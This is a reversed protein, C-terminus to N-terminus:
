QNGWLEVLTEMEARTIAEGPAKNFTQAIAGRLNADPIDVVQAESVIIVFNLSASDTGDSATYTYVTPPSAAAPTGSLLRIVPNFTLGAPLTPSISYTIIDGDPDAAAPLVQPTIATGAIASITEITAGGVFTPANNAGQASAGSIWSSSVVLIVWFLRFRKMSKQEKLHTQYIISLEQIFLVRKTYHLIWGEVLLRQRIRITDSKQLVSSKKVM